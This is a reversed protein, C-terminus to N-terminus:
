FIFPNRDEIGWWIDPQCVWKEKMIRVNVYGKPCNWPQSHIGKWEEKMVFGSCSLQMLSVLAIFYKKM